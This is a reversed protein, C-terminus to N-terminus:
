VLNDYFKRVLDKISQSIHHTNKRTAKRIDSSSIEPLDFNLLRYPCEKHKIGKRPIVIIEVESEIKKYDKWSRIEELLDSGIILSFEYTPFEKKLAYITDITKNPKPLENEIRVIKVKRINRLCLRLMQVRAKFPALEKNFPHQASPLVWVEGFEKLAALKKIARVHSNHPPNFSGGFLAIKM